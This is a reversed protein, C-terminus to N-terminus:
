VTIVVLVSGSMGHTVVLQVLLLLLLLVTDAMSLLAPKSVGTAVAGAPRVEVVLVVVGLPLLLLTTSSTPDGHM